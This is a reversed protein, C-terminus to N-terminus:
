IPINDEGSLIVPLDTIKPPTTIPTVSPAIDKDGNDKKIYHSYLMFGLADISVNGLTLSLSEIDNLTLSVSSEETNFKVKIGEVRSEDSQSIIVPVMEVTTNGIMFVRRVKGSVGDNLELRSGTYTYLNPIKLDQAIGKLERLFIPITYRTMHLTDNRNWPSRIRNGSEDFNVPRIIGITLLPNLTISSFKDGEYVSHFEPNRDDITVRLEVRIKGSITLVNYRIVHKM